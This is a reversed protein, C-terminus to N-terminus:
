RLPSVMQAVFEPIRARVRALKFDRTPHYGRLRGTRKDLDCSARDTPVDLSVGRWGFSFVVDGKRHGGTVSIRPANAKVGTVSFRAIARESETV